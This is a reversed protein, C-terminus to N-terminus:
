EKRAMEAMIQMEEIRQKNLLKYNVRGGDDQRGRQRNYHNNEKEMEKM